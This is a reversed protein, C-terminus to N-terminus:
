DQFEKLKDDNWTVFQGSLEKPAGLALRAMVNGPRDASLLKGEEYASVFRKGDTDMMDAFRGRIDTQMQTDVMGPRVAITTVDPEEKALTLALHNVAAKSAGYAGWTITASTAAGSSTLIIRGHRPRIYPLLEKVKYTWRLRDIILHLGVYSLFNVKFVKDWEELESVSVKKCNGLTGHNIVAADISEIGFHHLSQRFTTKLFDPSSVDGQIISISGDPHASQLDHLPQTNTNCCLILRHQQPLSVLYATIAYGIGSSAGPGLTLCPPCM